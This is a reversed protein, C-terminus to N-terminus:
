KFDNSNVILALTPSLYLISIHDIANATTTATYATGGTFKYSSNFALTNGATTGQDIIINIYSGVEAGTPMELTGNTELELYYTALPNTVTLSVTVGDTLTDITPVQFVLNKSDDMVLMSGEEGESLPLGWITSSTITNSLKLKNNKLGFEYGITGDTQSTNLTASTANIDNAYSAIKISSSDLGFSYIDTHSSTDGGSSKIEAIYASYNNDIPLGNYLAITKDSLGFPSGDGIMFLKINKSDNSDLQIIGYGDLDSPGILSELVKNLNGEITYTSGQYAIVSDIPTLGITSSTFDYDDLPISIVSMGYPSGILGIDQTVGNNGGLGLTYIVELTDNNKIWKVANAYYFSDIENASDNDMDSIPVRITNGGSIQIQLSDLGLRAYSLTQDAIGTPINLTDLIGTVTNVIIMKDGVDNQYRTLILSGNNVRISATDDIFSKVELTDTYIPYNTQGQAINLVILATIIFILRKM